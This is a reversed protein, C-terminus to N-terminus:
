LVLRHGTKGPVGRCLSSEKSTQWGGTIVISREVTAGQQRNIHQAYALWLADVDDGSLTVERGTGELRVTVARKEHVRTIEGRIGNEIRPQGNPQHQRIFAVRDGERLGYHVSGLRVEREGLEGREGRLYQARANLRHVEINTADSILAVQSPDLESANRGGSCRARRLRMVPRKCTSSSVPATTRWRVSRNGGRLAAWARREDPDMTRWVQRLEVVPM